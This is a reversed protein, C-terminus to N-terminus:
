ENVNSGFLVTRDDKNNVLVATNDIITTGRAKSVENALVM